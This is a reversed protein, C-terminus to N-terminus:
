FSPVADLLLQTYPHQPHCCLDRTSGQEVIKGDHMVICQPCFHAVVAINHSILLIAVNREQNLKQLLTIVQKQSFVDCASTIEDCILLEPGVALGRAISLRQRQGGSLQSPLRELLTCDLEVASLLERIKKDREHTIGKFHIKLPEELIARVTMLPDFVEFFDQPIVQIRRRYPFFQRSNFRSLEQGDFIIKGKVPVIVHGIAKMLTSKGSGSEGVIGLIGGRELQFSVGNVARVRRKSWPWLSRREYEIVLSQVELLTETM